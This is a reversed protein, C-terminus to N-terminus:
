VFIRSDDFGPVAVEKGTTKPRLWFIELVHIWKQEQECNIHM